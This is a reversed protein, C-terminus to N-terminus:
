ESFLDLVIKKLKDKEVNIFPSYKEVITRVEDWILDYQLAKDWHAKAGSFELLLCLTDLCIEGGLYLRLLLPHKGDKCLFNTDFSPDLKGLETKFLYSFSQQRKLWDKYNTEAGDSFALERIWSKPNKSLNVVLFNHVDPHKALKQFWLKDKRKEFSAVSARVKGNFKFYDYSSSTFHSKLALYEKYCEFATM